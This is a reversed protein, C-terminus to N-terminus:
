WTPSPTRGRWFEIDRTPRLPSPPPDRWRKNRGYTSPMLEKSMPDVFVKPTGYDISRTYEGGGGGGGSRGYGGFSRYGYYGSNRSNRSYSGSGDSDYWWDFFPSLNPHADFYSSKTAKDWGRKYGAVTTWIGPWRREAEDFDKGFDYKTESTSSPDYKGYLWVNVLYAQPNEDWYQGRAARGAETDIYAPRNAWGMIADEGFMQEVQGYEAPYDSYLWAARMQPNEAAFRKRQQSGKPYSYYQDFLSGMEPGFKSSVRARSAEIDAGVKDWQAQWADWFAIEEPSDYQEGLTERRSALMEPTLEGPAPPAVSGAAAVSPEAGPLTPETMGTVDGLSQNLTGLQPPQGLAEPATPTPLPGTSTPGAQGALRAEAAAVESTYDREGMPPQDYKGVLDEPRKLLQMAREVVAEDYAERAAARGGGDLGEMEPYPVEKEAQKIARDQAEVRLEDPNMAALPDYDAGSFQFEGSEGYQRSPYQEELAAIKEEREDKLDSEYKQFLKYGQKDGGAHAEPHAALWENKKMEEYDYIADEKPKFGLQSGRAGPRTAGRYSTEEPEGYLQRYGYAPDLANQGEPLGKEEALLRDYEKQAGRGGAINGVEGEHRGEKSYKLGSREAKLMRMEHELQPYHYIPVGILFAALLAIGRDVAMAQVGAEWIGRAEEPQEPLPGVGNRIQHGVDIAWAAMEPSIEGDLVMLSIAKGARGYDWEDGLRMVPHVSPESGPGSIHGTRGMNFYGVMRPIPMLDSWMFEPDVGRYYKDYAYKYAPMLGPIVHQLSTLWQETASADETPTEMFPNNSLYMGYPIANLLPNGMLWEGGPLAFSGERYDPRQRRKNEEALNDGVEWYNNVIRPKTLSALAMRAPMRSWFYPYPSISSLITDVNRRDGFNLMNWNATERGVENAIALESKFRPVAKDDILDMMRLRQNPSMQNKQPKLMRDLNRLILNEADDLNTLTERAVSAVRDDVPGFSRRISDLVEKWFAKDGVLNLMNLADPNLVIGYYSSGKQLNVNPPPGLGPLGLSEIFELVDPRAAQALQEIDADDMGVEVLSPRVEDVIERSSKNKFRGAEDVQFQRKTIETRLDRYQQLYAQIDDLSQVERGGLSAGYVDEFGRAEGRELNMNIDTANGRGYRAIYTDLKGKGHPGSINRDWEARMAARAEELERIEIAEDDALSWRAAQRDPPLAKKEPAHVPIAKKRKKFPQGSSDKDSGIGFEPRKVAEMGPLADQKQVPKAKFAGPGQAQVPAGSMIPLDESTDDFMGTQPEVKKEQQGM